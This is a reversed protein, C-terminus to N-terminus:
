NYRCGDNMNLTSLQIVHINQQTSRFHLHSMILMTSVLIPRVAIKASTRCSWRLCCSHWSTLTSQIHIPQAYPSSHLIITACLCPGPTRPNDMIKIGLSYPPVGPHCGHRHRVNGCEERRRISFLTADRRIKQRRQEEMEMRRVSLMEIRAVRWCGDEWWYIPMQLTSNLAFIARKHLVLWRLPVLPFCHWLQYFVLTGVVQICRFDNSRLDCILVQHM